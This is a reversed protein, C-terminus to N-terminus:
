GEINETMNILKDEVHRYVKRSAEEIQNNVEGMARYLEGMRNFENQLNDIIAQAGEGSLNSSLQNIVKKLNWIQDGVSEQESKLRTQLDALHDRDWKYISASM